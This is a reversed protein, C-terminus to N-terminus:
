FITDPDPLGFLQSLQEPKTVQSVAIPIGEDVPQAPELYGYVFVKTGKSARAALKAGAKLPAIVYRAFAHGPFTIGAVVAATKSTAVALVVASADVPVGASHLSILPALHLPKSILVRHFLTGSAEGEKGYWGEVRVTLTGPLGKHVRIAAAPCSKSRRRHQLM